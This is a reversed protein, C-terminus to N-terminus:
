KSTGTYVTSTITCKYVFNALRDPPNSEEFARHTVRRKAEVRVKKSDCRECAESRFCCKASATKLLRTRSRTRSSRRQRAQLRQVLQDVTPAPRVSHQALVQAPAPPAALALRPM